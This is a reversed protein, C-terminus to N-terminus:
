GKFKSSKKGFKLMFAAADLNVTARYWVNNKPDKYDVLSVREMGITNNSVEIRQLESGIKNDKYGTVM